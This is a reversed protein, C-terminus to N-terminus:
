SLAMFYGDDCLIRRPWDPRESRLTQIKAAFAADQNSGAYATMDEALWNPIAAFRHTTYTDRRSQEGERPRALPKHHECLV